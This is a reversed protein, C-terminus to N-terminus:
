EASYATIRVAITGGDALDISCGKDTFRVNTVREGSVDSETVLARMIVNAVRDERNKKELKSMRTGRKAEAAFERALTNRM